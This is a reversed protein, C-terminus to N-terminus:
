RRSPGAVGRDGGKDVIEGVELDDDVLIRGDPSSGNSARVTATSLRPIGPNATSESPVSCMDSIREHVPQGDPVHISGGRRVAGSPDLKWSCCQVCVKSYASTEPSPSQRCAAMGARLASNERGGSATVSFM